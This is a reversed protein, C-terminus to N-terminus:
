QTLALDKIVDDGTVTIQTTDYQRTHLNYVLIEATTEPYEKLRPSDTLWQCISQGSFERLPREKLEALIWKKIAKAEKWHLTSDVVLGNMKVLLNNTSTSECIDIAIQPVGFGKKKKM